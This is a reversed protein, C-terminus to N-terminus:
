RSATIAAAIREAVMVTPLHLNASPIDPFISADCVRLGAYGHVRGATDVVASPDDFAGMRCTCSAHVYDGVNGRMWADLEADSEGLGDVSTGIDDILVDTAITRFPASTAIHVAHRIAQRLRDRDREDDLMDFRVLPGNAGVSVSGTSHVSMLGAVLAGYEPVGVHDLPLLQLDGGGANSSWRLLSAAALHDVAAPETLRLTLTASAHDKLGQGVGPRDVGSRLLLWPSHIAGASVVVEGAEIFEGGILEIGVTKTADFVIREVATDARV